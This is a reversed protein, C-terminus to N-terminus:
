VLNKIIVKVGEILEKVKDASPEPGSHGCENRISALYRIKNWDTNDIIKHNKLAQNLDNISHYKKQDLVGPHNMCVQKLHSELVVGALVGAPRVHNNELLFAAQDLQDELIEAKLHSQIDYLYSDFRDKVAKVMALQQKFKPVASRGNCYVNSIRTIPDIVHELYDEIMYNESTIRQRLKTKEYYRVFDEYRQPLLQKILISAESYWSQYEIHFDPLTLKYENFEKKVKFRDKLARIDCDLLMADYLLNGKNLLSEINKKYKVINNTM